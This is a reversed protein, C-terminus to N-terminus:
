EREIRFGAGAMGGALSAVDWRAAEALRQADADHLAGFSSRFYVLPRKGPVAGCERVRGIFISHDGGPLRETVECTFHAIAEELVPLEHGRRLPVGEFKDVAPRAFRVALAEQGEGLVNVVFRGAAAIARHTPLESNICVLLLIPDLSVSAVASATMGALRGDSLTTIVTVGTVFHSIAERFAVEDVGPSDAGSSPVARAYGVHQTGRRLRAAGCVVRDSSGGTM